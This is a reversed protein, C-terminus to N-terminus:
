GYRALTVVIPYSYIQEDIFSIMLAYISYNKISSNFSKYLSAYDTISNLYPHIKLQKSQILLEISLHYNNIEDLRFDINEINKKLHKDIIQTLINNKIIKIFVRGGKLFQNLMILDKELEQYYLSSELFNSYIISYNVNNEVTYCGLLVISYGNTDAYVALNFYRFLNICDSVLLKELDTEPYYINPLM